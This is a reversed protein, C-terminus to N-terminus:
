GACYVNLFLDSVKRLLCEYAGRVAAAAPARGPPRRRVFGPASRDCISVVTGVEDCRDRMSVRLGM